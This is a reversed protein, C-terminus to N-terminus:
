RVTATGIAELVTARTDDGDLLRTGHASGAVVTLEADSVTAADAIARSASAYPEDDAAVVITLPEAVDPAAAVADLGSFTAPPSLAVVALLDERGATVVAATANMSAGVMVIDDVGAARLYAVAASQDVDLATDAIGRSSGYGRSDYALVAHGAARLAEATPTWAEKSSGRMHALVIGVGSPEAPGYLLGSLVAGDAATFMVAALTDAGTFPGPAVDAADPLDGGSTVGPPASDDPSAVPGGSSGCATAALALVSITVTALVRRRRSM